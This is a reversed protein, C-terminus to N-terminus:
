WIVSIELYAFLLVFNLNGNKKEKKKFPPPYFPRFFSIYILQNINAHQGMVVTYRFEHWWIIRKKCRCTVMHMCFKKYLLLCNRVSVGWTPPMFDCFIRGILFRFSHINLLEWWWRMLLTPPTQNQQLTQAQIKCAWSFLINSVLKLKKNLTKKNAGADGGHDDVDEEAECYCVLCGEGKLFYFFGM